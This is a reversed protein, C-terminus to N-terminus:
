YMLRVRVAALVEVEITVARIREVTMNPSTKILFYSKVANIKITEPQVIRTNFEM